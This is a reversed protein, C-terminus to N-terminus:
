ITSKGHFCKCKLLSPIALTSGRICPLVRPSYVERRGPIRINGPIRTEPCQDTRGAVKRQWEPSGRFRVPDLFVIVRGLIQINWPPRTRPKGSRQSRGRVQAPWTTLIDIIKDKPPRNELHRQPTRWPDRGIPGVQFGGVDIRPVGRFGVSAVSVGCRGPIRINKPGWSRSM